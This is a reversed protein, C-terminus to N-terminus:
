RGLVLRVIQILILVGAMGFALYVLAPITGVFGWWNIVPTVLWRISELLPHGSRDPKM